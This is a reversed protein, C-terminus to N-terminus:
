YRINDPVFFDLDFSHKKLQRQKIKATLKKHNKNKRLKKM